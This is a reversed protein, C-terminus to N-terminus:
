TMERKNTELIPLVYLQNVHELVLQHGTLLPGLTVDLGTLGVQLGHHIQAIDGDKLFMEIQHDHLFQSIAARDQVHPSDDDGRLTLQLTLTQIILECTTLTLTLM